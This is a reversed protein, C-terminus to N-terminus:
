PLKSVITFGGNFDLLPVSWSSERSFVLGFDRSDSIPTFRPFRQDPQDRQSEKHTFCRYWQTLQTLFSQASFVLWIVQPSHLVSNLQSTTTKKERPSSTTTSSNSSGNSLSSSSSPTHFKDQGSHFLVKTCEQSEKRLESKLWLLAWNLQTNKAKDPSNCKWNSPKGHASCFILSSKLLVQPSQGDSKKTSKLTKNDSLTRTFM